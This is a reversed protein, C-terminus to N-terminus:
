YTLIFGGGSAGAGHAMMLLTMGRKLKGKEIAENLNLPTMAAVTNGYKHFCSVSMEESIGLMKIQDKWVLHTQDSTIVFDIDNITLGSLEFLRSSIIKCSDLVSKHIKQGDPMALNFIENNFNHTKNLLETGFPIYALDSLDSDTYFYSCKFHQENSHGLLMAAFGDGNLFITRTDKAVAVQKSISVKEGGLVLVYDDGANISSIALEISHMFGSCAAAIDTCPIGRRLGLRELVRLSTAPIAHDGFLRSYFIRDIKEPDIGSKDICHKAAEYLYESVTISSSAQRREKIGISFQVARDSAILDFEDIINQNTVVKEPLAAGTSIIKAYRNINLPRGQPYNKCSDIMVGSM